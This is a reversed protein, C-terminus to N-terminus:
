RRGPRGPGGIQTTRGAGAPIRTITGGATTLGITAITGITSGTTIGITTSTPGITTVGIPGSIGIPGDVPAITPGAMTAPVGPDIRVIAPVTKNVAAAKDPVIPVIVLDVQDTATTAAPVALVIAMERDAPAIVTTVEPDQRDIVAEVLGIVAEVLGIVAEVLGIVAEARDIVVAVLGVRDIVMIVELDAPAIEATAVVPDGQGITVVVTAPISRCFRRVIAARSIVRAPGIRVLAVGQAAVKLPTEV